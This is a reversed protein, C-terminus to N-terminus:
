VRRTRGHSHVVKVHDLNQDRSARYVNYRFIPRFILWSIPSTIADQPCEMECNLCFLCNCGWVPYGKEDATINETPCKKRCNGCAKCKERNVSFLQSWVQKVFWRNLLFRELRYITGLAPDDKQRIHEDGIIEGAVKRGFEEAQVLEQATPHDPSFLYGEKLYGLFFDEGYCRFYGMDKAGKETLARRINNGADGIYTGHLVFVFFALGELEPLGDVFDMMTFPPHFYYTPSGIGLFDYGSLNITQQSSIRCLDVECNENRLGGAISEAVRATTGGLSFYVILGKSM